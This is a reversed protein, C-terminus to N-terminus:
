TPWQTRLSNLDARSANSVVVVREIHASALSREILAELYCLRDGYTLTVLTTKANM